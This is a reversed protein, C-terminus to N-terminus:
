RLVTILSLDRKSLGPREWVDGYLVTETLDALKPAVARVEARAKM